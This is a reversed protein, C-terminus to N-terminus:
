QTAGRQRAGHRAIAVEDLERQAAGAAGAVEAATDREHLKEVTRRARAASTLDEVGMKVRSEAFTVRHRAATLTAVAAARAAASAQFAMASESSTVPM